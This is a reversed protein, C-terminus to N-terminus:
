NYNINKMVDEIDLTYEISKEFYFGLLINKGDQDTLICINRSFLTVIHNPYAELYEGDEIYGEMMDNLAEIDISPIDSIKTDESFLILVVKDDM